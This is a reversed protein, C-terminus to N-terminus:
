SVQTGEIGEFLDNPESCEPLHDYVNEWAAATSPAALVDAIGKALTLADEKPLFFRHSTFEHDALKEASEAYMAHVAISEDDHPYAEANVFYFDSM